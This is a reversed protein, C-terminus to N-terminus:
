PFSFTRQVLFGARDAAVTKLGLLQLTNGLFLWTGLEMGAVVRDNDKDNSSEIPALTEDGAARSDLFASLSLTTVASIGFYFASFLFGPIPPDIEYLLRV